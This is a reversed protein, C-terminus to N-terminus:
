ARERCQAHERSFRHHLEAARNLTLIKLENFVALPARVLGEFVVLRVSNSGVDLVAFRRDGPATPQRSPKAADVTTLSM